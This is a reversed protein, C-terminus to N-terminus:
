GSDHYGHRGLLLVAPPALGLAFCSRQPDTDEKGVGM